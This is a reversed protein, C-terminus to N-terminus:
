GCLYYKWYLCKTGQTNFDLLYEVSLYVELGLSILSQFRCLLM